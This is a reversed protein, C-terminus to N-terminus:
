QTISCTYEAALSIKSVKLIESAGGFNPWAEQPLYIPADQRLALFKLILGAQLLDPQFRQLGIEWTKGHYFNDAILVGGLYACAMDGVYDVRLYVERANAFATAPVKVEWTEALEFRARDPDEEPSQAVGLPGIKPLPAPGGTQVQRVTVAPLAAAPTSASTYRRFVGDQAEPMAEGQFFIPQECGPYIALSCAEPRFTQIKITDADFFVPDASIVLRDSGWLHTKWCQRVQAADLVLLAAEGGNPSRLTILCDTGPRAAQLMVFEGHEVKEVPGSVVQLAGKEFALEVPIDHIESFVYVPRGSGSGLVCVPQVTASRLLIGNLDLNFPWLGYVGAPITIPRTPLHLTETHLQLEFQVEAHAPLSEIRQYNNIFLFGSQGNSRVAWRLTSQDDPGIPMRDPLVTPMPALRDVFDQLFQHLPRLAHYSPRVQGFEGLPAQFDYSIVPLDNWYSTAQSEQMSSLKGLPHSGGHYMYYGMLNSGSGVKAYAIAAIDEAQVTPRRHYAVQMGGGTECTGYPYRKLYAPDYSDPPTILDAGITNDDRLHSFFYNKRSARGWGEVQRDWFADPYGGFVPIVEDQPVLAPGWGTMTYIPVDMGAAQAMHKLTVIHEPQNALENELQIGIVPGGDKWLLGDLQRAIEGYLRQVYSLYRPADQRVESGCRELLWDPFGGNRAEGHAWPGIRPYSFLDLQACLEVFDRLSRSGSWDFSGEEEEHYIWFIYTAVVNIGGAKMKLLEEAWNSRPCRSFHFEGMVPLWPRGDLLLSQSNANIAVGQPNVGVMKLHGSLVQMELTRLDITLM